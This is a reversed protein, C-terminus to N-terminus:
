PKGDWLVECNPLAKQLQEVGASTFQTDRLDLRELNSLHKLHPVAEDTVKTGRLDLDELSERQALRAAGDDTIQTHNLDLTRLDILRGVHSLGQDGIRSGGLRLTTLETMRLLYKLGNGEVPTGQLNLQRLRRMGALHVLGADTVQTDALDLLRTDTLGRINRLQEDSIPDADGIASQNLDVRVVKAFFDVGLLNCLWRPAPPDGDRVNDNEDTEFDYHATGGMERVAAVASRQGATQQMKMALWAVVIALVLGVGILTRLAVRRNPKVDEAEIDNTDTAM